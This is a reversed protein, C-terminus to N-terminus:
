KGDVRMKTNYHGTMGGKRHSSRHLYKFGLIANDAMGGEDFHDADRWSLHDVMGGDNLHLHDVMGGDYFHLHDVM